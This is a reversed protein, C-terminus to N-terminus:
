IRTASDESIQIGTYPLTLQDTIVERDDIKIPFLFCTQLLGLLPLTYLPVM